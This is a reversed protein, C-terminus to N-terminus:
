SHREPKYLSIAVQMVVEPNTELNHLESGECLEEHQAATLKLITAHNPDGWSGDSLALIFVGDSTDPIDIKIPNM